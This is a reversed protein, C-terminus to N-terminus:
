LGLPSRFFWPEEVRVGMWKAGAVPIKMADGQGEGGGM